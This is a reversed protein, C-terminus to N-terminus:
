YHNSSCWLHKESHCEKCLSQLNNYDFALQLRKNDSYNMFSNIHHVDIAPKVIGKTLCVECLPNAKLKALRLKKWEVSQYIKQRGERNVSRNKQKKPKNLYPM